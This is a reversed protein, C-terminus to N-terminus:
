QTIGISIPQLTTRFEEIFLNLNNKNKGLCRFTVRLVPQNGSEALDTVLDKYSIEYKELLEFLEKMFPKDAPMVILINAKNKVSWVEVYQFVILCFLSIITTIAGIVFYGAGCAMGIAMTVWITASTTLGKVTVGNKIIVGSGLFGIGTVGAAALRMPDRTIENGGGVGYISLTMILASGLSILIHTRLGAAHGNIERQYGILGGFITSLLLSLFILLLNGWYGLNNFYNIIISDVSIPTNFSGTPNLIQLYNM